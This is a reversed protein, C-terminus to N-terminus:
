RAIGISLFFFLWESSHTKEGMSSQIPLFVILRPLKDNGQGKGDELSASLRDDEMRAEAM